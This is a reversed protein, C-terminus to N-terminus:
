PQSPWCFHLLVVSAQVAVASWRHGATVATIDGAHLDAQAAEVHLVVQGERVLLSVDGRPDDEDFTAGAELVVLVLRFTDSKVLTKGNRDGERYPLGGRLRSVEDALDFSLQPADLAHPPRM